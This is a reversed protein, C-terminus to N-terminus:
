PWRVSEWRGSSVAVIRALALRPLLGGGPQVAILAIVTDSSRAHMEGLVRLESERQAPRDMQQDPYSPHRRSLPSESGTTRLSLEGVRCACPPSLSLCRDPAAPRLSVRVEFVGRTYAVVPTDSPSPQIRRPSRALPSSRWCSATGSKSISGELRDHRPAHHLDRHLSTTRDTSPPRTGPRRGRDSRWTGSAPRVRWHPRTPAAWTQDRGDDGLAPPRDRVDDRAETGGVTAMRGRCPWRTLEGLVAPVVGYGLTTSHLAVGGQDRERAVMVISEHLCHPQATSGRVSISRSPERRGPPEHLEEPVVLTDVKPILFFLEERKQEPVDLRLRSGEALCADLVHLELPESACEVDGHRTPHM